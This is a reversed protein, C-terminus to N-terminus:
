GDDAGAACSLLGVQTWRWLVARLEQEAASETLDAAEALFEVLKRHSRSSALVRWTGRSSTVKM